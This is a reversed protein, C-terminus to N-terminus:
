SGMGGPVPEQDVFMQWGDEDVLLQTTGHALEWTVILSEANLMERAAQATKVAGALGVEQAAM